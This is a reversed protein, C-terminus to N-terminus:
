PRESIHAGLAIDMKGMIIHDLLWNQLFDMVRMNAGPKHELYEAQLLLLKAKLAKHAAKHAISEPYDSKDMLSEECTFHYETYDAVNSLVSKLVTNEKGCMMADHLQNILDLLKAHQEDIEEVGVCFSNDWDLLAM